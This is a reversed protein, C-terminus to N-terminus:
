PLEKLANAIAEDAHRGRGSAQLQGSEHLKCTLGFANSEIKMSRLTSVRLWSTLAEFVSEYTDLELAQASNAM